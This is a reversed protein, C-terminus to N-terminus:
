RSLSSRGGPPLPPAPKPPKAPMPPAARPRVPPAPPMPMAVGRNDTPWAALPDQPLADATSSPFTRASPQEVPLAAPTQSRAVPTRRTRAAISRPPLIAPSTKRNQWAPLPLSVGGIARLNPSKPISPWALLVVSLLAAVSGAAWLAENSIRRRVPLDDTSALLYGRKPITQLDPFPRGDSEFAKRLQYVARGLVGPVVHVNAWVAKLLEERSVVRGRNAYFYVLLEMVRPELATVQGGRQIRNLEPEVTWGAVIM